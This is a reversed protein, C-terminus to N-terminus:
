KLLSFLKHRFPLLPNNEALDKYIYPRIYENKFYDPNAEGLMTEVQKIGGAEIQKLQYVVTEDVDVDHKIEPLVSIHYKSLEEIKRQAMPADLEIHICDETLDHNYPKTVAYEYRMIKKRTMKEVLKIALDTLIVCIEHIVDADESADCVIYDIKKEIMIQAMEGAYLECFGTSGALVEQILQSEKIYKEEKSLNALAFTMFSDKQEPFINSVYLQSYGMRTPATASSGDTLIFIYPKAQEIFGHLRLEHGAHAVSLAGKGIPLNKM